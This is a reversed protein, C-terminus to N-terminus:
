GEWLGLSMLICQVTEVESVVYYNINVEKFMEQCTVQAENQRGSPTKVELAISYGNKMVFLDPFGKKLTRGSNRLYYSSVKGRSVGNVRLVLCKQELLYKIINDQIDKEIRLLLEGLGKSSLKIPNRLHHPVIKLGLVDASEIYITNSSHNYLIPCNLISNGFPSSIKYQFIKGGFHYKCIELFGDGGDSIPKLIKNVGKLDEFQRSILKSLNVSNICGKFSNPSILINFSM